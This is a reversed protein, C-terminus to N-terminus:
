PYFKRGKHFSLHIHRGRMRLVVEDQRPPWALVGCRAAWDRYVADLENVRSPNAPALDSLETRDEMMNYLEWPRDHEGVLKWSGMRVARNGEHEWFLPKSKTYTRGEILAHFSEGEPTPAPKGDRESPFVAGAIEAITATIDVLQFPEHIVAPSKVRAPWSVIFPTSIGGEHAWHKYLRFPTNSVNAWPLDYTMFTDEGGPRLGTINGIRIPRGGRTHTGWLSPDPEGPEELLFEACGGNDSLFMIVTNEREGLRDLTDLVRGIGQDVRDLQAAYTAMRLAEWDPDAVDSWPPADPDRPSIPWRPDLLQLGKLQEHRATRIADWGKRYTQEYRAIDEERAHLPWHPATYALYLFFPAGGSVSEDIMTIAKDTIADTMYFDPSEARIISEQDVLTVPDFFSGLGNLIGYFRDFGRQTPVPHRADGATAKWSDPDLARYNGGVHWKGSMLTRYGRSKLAEAITPCNPALFGQYGRPGLDLTMHAVGTQHPHLGTLLTARAPCCRAGNYLQTFRLGGYGLADLNPTRIESGYCGLDSFGMDDVLVLIINPKSVTQTQM